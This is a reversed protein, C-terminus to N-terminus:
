LCYVGKFKGINNPDHLKLISEMLANLKSESTKIILQVEVLSELNGEWWFLSKIEKFSICAAMKKRLLDRALSEANELNRETTVAIVLGEKCLKDVM